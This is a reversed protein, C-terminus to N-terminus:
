AITKEYLKFWDLGFEGLGLDVTDIYEFGAAEYLRQAPINGQFVDLRLSNINNAKALSFVEQLLYSGIGKKLYDPHVCFTRIVFIHSYNFTTKWTAKSYAAEPHHNLVISAIIIDGDLLLYQSDENCAAIADMEAPYYGKKWGPPNQNEELYDCLTDYLKVLQPLDQKTGKRFSYTKM